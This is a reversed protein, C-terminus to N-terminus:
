VSSRAYQCCHPVLLFWYFKDDVVGFLM